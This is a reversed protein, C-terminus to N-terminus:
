DIITIIIIIFFLRLKLLSFISERPTSIPTRIRPFNRCIQENKYYVRIANWAYKM